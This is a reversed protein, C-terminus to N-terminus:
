MTKMDAIENKHVPGVHDQPGQAVEKLAKETFAPDHEFDRM